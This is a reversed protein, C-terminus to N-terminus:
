VEWVCSFVCSKYGNLSHSPLECWTVQDTVLLMPSGVHLAPQPAMVAHSRLERGLFSSRPYLRPSWPIQGSLTDSDKLPLSIITIQPRHETM